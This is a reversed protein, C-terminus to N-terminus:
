AETQREPSCEATERMISNMDNSPMIAPRTDIQPPLVKM